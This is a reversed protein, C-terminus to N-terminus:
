LFVLTLTEGASPELARLRKVDRQCMSAATFSNLQLIVLTETYRNYGQCL